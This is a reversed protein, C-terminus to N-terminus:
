RSNFGRKAPMAFDAQMTEERRAFETLTATPIMMLRNDTTDELLSVKIGYVKGMKKLLESALEEDDENDFKKGLYKKGQYNRIDTNKWGSFVLTEQRELEKSITTGPITISTKQKVLEKDIIATIEGPKEGPAFELIVPTTTKDFAARTAEALSRGCFAQVEEVPLQENDCNVVQSTSPPAKDSSDSLAAKAMAEFEPAFVRLLRHSEAFLGSM